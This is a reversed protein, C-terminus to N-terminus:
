ASPWTKHSVSIVDEWLCELVCVEPHLSKAVELTRELLTDEGSFCLLELSDRGVPSATLSSGPIREPEVGSLDVVRDRARVLAETDEQPSLYAAWTPSHGNFPYDLFLPAGHVRRWHVVLSDWPGPRSAAIDVGELLRACRRPWARAGMLMEVCNWSGGDAVGDLLRGFFEAQEDEFASCWATMVGDDSALDIWSLVLRQAGSSLTRFAYLQEAM